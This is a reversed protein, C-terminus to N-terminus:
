LERHVAERHQPSPPGCRGSQPTDDRRRRQGCFWSHGGRYIFFFLGPLYVCVCEVLRFYKAVSLCAFQIEWVCCTALEVCVSVSVSVRVRVSPRKCLGVRPGALACELQTFQGKKEPCIVLMSAYVALAAM